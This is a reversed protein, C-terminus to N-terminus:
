GGSYKAHDGFSQLGLRELAPDLGGDGEVAEAGEVVLFLKRGCLRDVGLTSEVDFSTSYGVVFSKSSIYQVM